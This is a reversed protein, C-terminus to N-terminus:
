SKSGAHQDVASNVKPAVDAPLYASLRPALEDIFSQLRLDAADESQGPVIRTVLRVLAGDTRNKTLGDVFLYWKSWYENAVNRGRQVFWYYVLQKDNGRIIIVRNLPLTTGLAKSDYGMREFKAIQWGDGPICVIPSHPSSGTRQSAYYATYFNVAAENKARTYDSIIYDDLNLAHEVQPELLSPHGQWSGLNIPFSVFRAREPVIEHRGSVYFAGVAAACLLFACAAMPLSKAMESRPASAFSASVTPLYFVQFFRKGNLVRALLWIEAALIAACVAFVVWGEFFHLLGEAQGPGWRDVLLGTMGIRASNMVITIPIASLFVLARQWLPAQFLYAVLFGVSLLPYLYRLGSCAEAVQLKYSGLDIINGSLFVPVGFLRIFFVGLESSILQLRFSLESDLFYPLPIAFVLFVLPFFSVRLLSMGGFSLAIGFLAVVFGLQLLLFFASLEGVILMMAAVFIVVPGIWSPRGFSAVLADRRAWLMWAVVFPILFGHSYEEQQSWRDVLSLLGSGFAAFAATLALAVLLITVFLIARPASVPRLPVTGVSEITPDQDSIAPMRITRNMTERLAV